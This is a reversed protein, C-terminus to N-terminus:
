SLRSTNGMATAEVPGAIVRKGTTEAILDRLLEAQCGGGVTNISQFNRGLIVEMKEIIGRFSVTLSEYIGRAMQGYDEPVRQGTDRYYSVIAAPM